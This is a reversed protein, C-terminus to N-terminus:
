AGDISEPLGLERRLERALDGHARAGRQFRPSVPVDPAHHRRLVVRAPGDFFPGALAGSEQEVDVAVIDALPVEIADSAHGGGVREIHLLGAQRAIAIRYRTRSRLGVCLFVLAFASSMALLTSLVATQVPEVAHRVSLWRGHREVFFAHLEPLEAAVREGEFLISERGARDVLVLLDRSRWGTSQGKKVEVISDADFWHDPREGLLKGGHHVVCTGPRSCELARFTSREVLSTVAMTTVAVFLASGFRSWRGDFPGYGIAADVPPSSARYASSPLDM